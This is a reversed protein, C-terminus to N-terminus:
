SVLMMRVNLFDYKGYIVIVEIVGFIISFYLLYRLEDNDSRVGSANSMVESDNIGRSKSYDYRIMQSHRGMLNIGFPLTVLRLDEEFEERDQNLNYIDSDIKELTARNAGNGSNLAQTKEKELM